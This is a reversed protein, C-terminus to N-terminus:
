GRRPRTWLMLDPGYRRILPPELDLAQSMLPAGEGGLMPHATRGGLLKPAFFYMIEDVLGAALFSWALGAGGELLLSTLRRRGLEAVLAHLDLRGDPGPPLPLLEAGARELARARAPDPDQGCALLCGGPATPDLVRATPPTALRHDVVVRLPNRRGPLRCTLEPDDAVVTGAGVCIADLWARLRHVQRRAAPGTIWRSDGRATATKGDLTAATKLLVHPRGQTIHTFFFRHEHACERGLVGGVVTLGHAALFAGGGGDVLPNPDSAGFAVRAVGSALIARTCPPTRGQHNCPELTVYLDAGRAAEGAAALAAAEGHPGGYREHWGRAIIRGDRVVVAGVAPNPSSRGLGRRTLALARRM